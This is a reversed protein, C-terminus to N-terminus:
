ALGAKRAAEGLLDRQAATLSKPIQVDIRVYLDGDVKPTEVGQGKLRLTEGPQTGPPITLKIRRGYANEIHRETGLMAEFAGVTETVHLDDGERRFRPHEGVRFTVYLDGRQGNPSTAGRGRLRIKFGDRVGKPVDIRVTEGNPLKVDTKGGRLAKDFSIRMRTKVDASAQPRAQDGFADDGGGSFFRSFLDGFGGGGGSSGGFPNSSEGFPDQTGPRGGSTEFRVYSGDPNQYYRSGNRTSYTDGFAGFPNKRSLDYRKRKEPDSLVDNAEQIAKFREEAAPNDPNRDPHNERALKRYAKKIAEASAGEDVGLIEYYDKTQAM